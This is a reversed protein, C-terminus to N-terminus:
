DSADSENRAEDGNGKDHAWWPEDFRPPQAIILGCGSLRGSQALFLRDYSGLVVASEPTLDQM